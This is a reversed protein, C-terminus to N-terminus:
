LKSVCALAFKTLIAQQMSNALVLDVQDYRNIDNLAM